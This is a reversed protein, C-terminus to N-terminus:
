AVVALPREDPGARRGADVGMKRFLIVNRAHLALAGLFIPGTIFPLYEEIWRPLYIDAM